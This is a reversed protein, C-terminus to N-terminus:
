SLIGMIYPRNTMGMESLIKMPIRQLIYIEFTHDGMWKLICNHLSVKMTILVVSITFVFIWVEYTLFRHIQLKLFYTMFIGGWLCVGYIKESSFLMNEIYDKFYSYWMGMVYCFATNYWWAQEPYYGKLVIVYLVTFGTVCSIAIWTRKRIIFFSIFSVVYLYLIAFIYWNSNGITKWGILSWLITKYDYTIDLFYNMILFCVIAMAVHIWTILIRKYPMTKVYDHGRHKVAEMIGYGSYFLFMVVVTQSMFKSVEIYGKDYIGTLEVYQKFHSAVILLVFIGRVSATSEKSLYNKNFEDKKYVEIGYTCLIVIALLYFIM